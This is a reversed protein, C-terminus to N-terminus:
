YSNFRNRKQIENEKLDNNFNLIENDKINIEENSVNSDTDDSQHEIDESINNIKTIIYKYLNNWVALDYKRLLSYIIIVM